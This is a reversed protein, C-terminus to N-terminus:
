RQRAYAPPNEALARIAANVDPEPGSAKTKFYHRGLLVMDLIAGPVVLTGWGPASQSGEPAASVLKAPVNRAELHGNM